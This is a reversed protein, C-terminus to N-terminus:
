CKAFRQHEAVPYTKLCKPYKSFVVPHIKICNAGNSLASDRRLVMNKNTSIQKLKQVTFDLFDLCHSFTVCKWLHRSKRSKVTCFSFCIDVFLFVGKSFLNQEKWHHLSCWFGDLLKRLIDLFAQFGVRYCFMLPESLALCVNPHVMYKSVVQWPSDMSTHVDYMIKSKISTIFCKFHTELSCFGGESLNTKCM